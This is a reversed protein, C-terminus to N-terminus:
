GKEAAERIKKQLERAKAVGGAIKLKEFAAVSQDLVALAEDVQGAMALIQGFMM